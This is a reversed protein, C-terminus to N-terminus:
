FDTLESPQKLGKTAKDMAGTLLKDNQGDWGTKIVRTTYNNIEIEKICESDNYIGQKIVQGDKDLVELKGDPKGDKFFGVFCNGGKLGTFKRAYGDMKGKKFRGEKVREIKCSDSAFDTSYARYEIVRGYGTMADAIDNLFIPKQNKRDAPSMDSIVKIQQMKDLNEISEVLIFIDSFMAGAESDIKEQENHQVHKLTYFGGGYLYNIPLGQIDQELNNRKYRLPGKKNVSGIPQFITGGFVNSAYCVDIAKVMELDKKYNKTQPKRQLMEVCQKTHEDVPVM